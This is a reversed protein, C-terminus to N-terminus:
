GSGVGFLAGSMAWKRGRAVRLLVEGAVCDEDRPNWQVGARFRRLLRREGLVATEAGALFTAVRRNNAGTQRALRLSVEDLDYGDHRHFAAILGDFLPKLFLAVNAGAAADPVDVVVRVGFRGEVSRELRVRESAMKVAHWIAATRTSGTLPPVEIGEWNAAAAGARWHMFEEDVPRIAYSQYHQPTDIPSRPPPSPSFSREFRVGNAMALRFAGPGINYFLVNEVDCRDAHSSKYVAHLVEDSVPKLQRVANAVEDRMERLWGKPEFPPRTTSWLEVCEHAGTRPLLVYHSSLEIGKPYPPPM